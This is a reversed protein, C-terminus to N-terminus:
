RFNEILVLDSGEGLMKVFLIKKGDASVALGSGPRDLTGLLRDRGTATGRLLLPVARPDGGCGVHYIGAQGLAYGFRPVCDIVTREQGGALSV